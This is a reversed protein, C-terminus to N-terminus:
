QTIQNILEFFNPCSVSVSTDDDIASPGVAFLAAISFAMVIRHDGYSKLDAGNIEERGEIALGDELLGCKVDMANLNDAIAQLRDSEKVKLESADRILTTGPTYAAIVALVPIEDIMSAVTEGAIRRAKLEGGTVTASGRLEGSVTHKDRIEVSCGIQRLHDLFATRTLNLGLNEVTVSGGSIAAAAFLYSATSIDGPIDILGGKIATGSALTIERRFDEPMSMRRKRSDRSDEVLVPKVDRVTIAAGLERLMIETHDRTTTEERITVPCGAAVAALLLASKVQASAVPLRYEFPPLNGGRIRLPMHGDTDFLEAGMATLPDVIRTMPRLSLSEDGSLIVSLESGAAIGALLRATTGSNGCDIITDPQVHPRIPPTLVLDGGRLDVRVGFQEAVSLSVRCDAADPFNRITIPERALMSMLAARHAISKDGPVQLCGSIRKANVLERRM